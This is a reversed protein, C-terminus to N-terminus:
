GGSDGKSENWRRDGSTEPAAVAHDVLQLELKLKDASQLEVKRNDHNAALPNM